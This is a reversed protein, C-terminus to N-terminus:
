TILREFLGNEPDPDCDSDLDAKQLRCFASGSSVALQGEMSLRGKAM